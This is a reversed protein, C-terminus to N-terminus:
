QTPVSEADLARRDVVERRAAERNALDTLASALTGHFTRKGRGDDAIWESYRPQSTDRQVTGVQAGLM